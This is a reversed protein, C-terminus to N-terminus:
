WDDRPDYGSGSVGYYEPEADEGNFRNMTEMLEYFKKEHYAQGRGSQNEGDEIGEGFIEKCVYHKLLPLALHSPVGEPIDTGAFLAAPKRYYQLTIDSAASPIGQYYLRNGKISINTVSGQLSLDKKIAANMFLTFAYFDGGEVPWIRFDSSDSAYFVQRQYNDPLSIYPLTTDTQVTTMTHLDPLPPSLSGNPMIIGGAIAQLAINIDADIEVEGYDDDVIVRQISVRIEQLTAM